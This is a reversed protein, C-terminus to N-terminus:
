LEGGTVRWGRVGRPKLLLGFGMFWEIEGFVRKSGFRVM